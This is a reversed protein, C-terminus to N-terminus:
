NTLKSMRSRTPGKLFYSQKKRPTSRGVISSLDKATPLEKVTTVDKPLYLKMHTELRYIRPATFVYLMAGMLSILFLVIVIM